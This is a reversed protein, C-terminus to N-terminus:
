LPCGVESRTFQCFCNALRISITRPVVQLSSLLDQHGTNQLRRDDLFGDGYRLVKFYPGDVQRADHGAAVVTDADDLMPAFHASVGHYEVDLVAVAAHIDCEIVRQRSPLVNVNVIDDSDKIDQM